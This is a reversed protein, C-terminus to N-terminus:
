IYGRFCLRILAPLSKSTILVLVLIYSCYMYNKEMTSAILSTMTAVTFHAYDALHSYCDHEAKGVITLIPYVTGSLRPYGLIELVKNWVAVTTTIDQSTRPYRLHGSVELVDLYCLCQQGLTQPHRPHGSVELVDYYCLCQQGLTQPHRPHGSM